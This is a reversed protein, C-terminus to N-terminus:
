YNCCVGKSSYNASINLGNVDKKRMVYLSCGRPDGQHYYTLSPYKETLLQEVRKLAGTERDAIPYRSAKNSTYPRIVMYPKNTMEDREVSWSKYNDSDGCELESWRSLTMEARRLIMADDYGIGLREMRDVWFKFNELESM